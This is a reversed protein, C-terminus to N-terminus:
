IEGDLFPKLEPGTWTDPKLIKGDPRRKIDGTVVDVQFKDFNSRTVEAWGGFIGWTRAICYGILM